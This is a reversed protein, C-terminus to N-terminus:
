FEVRLGMLPAKKKYDLGMSFFYKKDKTSKFMTEAQYTSKKKQLLFLRGENEAMDDTQFKIAGYSTPKKNMSESQTVLYLQDSKLRERSVYSFNSSECAILPSCLFLSLLFRLVSNFTVRM